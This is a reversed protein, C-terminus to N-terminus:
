IMVELIIVDVIDIQIVILIRPQTTSMKIILVVTIIVVLFVVVEVFRIVVATHEVIMPLVIVRLTVVM